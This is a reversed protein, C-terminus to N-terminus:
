LWSSNAARLAPARPLLRVSVSGSLQRRREHHDWLCVQGHAHHQNTGRMSPMAGAVNQYESVSCRSAILGIGIWIDFPSDEGLFLVALVAVMAVSLQGSARSAARAGASSRSLLLALLAQPLGLSRWSLTPRRSSQRSHNRRVACVCSRCRFGLHGRRAAIDCLGSRHASRRDQRLDGYVGRVASFAGGVGAWNSLVSRM